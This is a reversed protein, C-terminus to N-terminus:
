TIIDEEVSYAAEQAIKRKGQRYIRSFWQRGSEKIWANESMAPNGEEDKPIPNYRFFGLKFEALKTDDITYTIQAM